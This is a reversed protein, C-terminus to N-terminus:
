QNAPTTVSTPPPELAAPSPGGDTRAPAAEAPPSEGQEDHPEAQAKLIEKADGRSLILMREIQKSRQPDKTLGGVILLFARALRWVAFAAPGIAVALIYVWHAM